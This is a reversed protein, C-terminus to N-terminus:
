GEECRGTGGDMWCFLPVVKQQNLRCVRSLAPSSRHPGPQASVQWLGMPVGPCGMQADQPQHLGESDSLNPLHHHIGDSGDQRCTHPPRPCVAKKSCTYPSHHRPKTSVALGLWSYLPNGLRTEVGNCPRAKVATIRSHFSCITTLFYFLMKVKQKQFHAFTVNINSLFKKRKEQCVQQLFCKLWNWTSVM